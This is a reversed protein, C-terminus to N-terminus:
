PPPRLNQSLPDLAAGLVPSGPSAGAVAQVPLADLSSTGKGGVGFGEAPPPQLEAPPMVRTGCPCPESEPGERSVVHGRALRQLQRLIPLSRGRSGTVTHHQAHAPLYCTCCHESGRGTFLAAEGGVSRRDANQCAGLPDQLLFHCGM